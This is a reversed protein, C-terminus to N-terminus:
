DLTVKRSVNKRIIPITIELVGDDARASVHETDVEENKDVLYEFPISVKFPKREYGIFVVDESETAGKNAQGVNVVVRDHEVQIDVDTKKYPAYVMRVKFANVVNNADRCLFVNYRNSHDTFLRRWPDDKKASYTPSNNKTGVGNTGTATGGSDQKKNLPTYAVNDRIARSLRNLFDDSYYPSDFIDFFDM